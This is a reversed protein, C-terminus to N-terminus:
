KINTVYRQARSNLAKWYIVAAPKDSRKVKYYSKKREHIQKRNPTSCASWKTVNKTYCNMPARTHLKGCKLYVDGGCRTITWNRQFQNFKKSKRCLLVCKKSMNTFNNNKWKKWVARNKWRKVENKLKVYLPGWSINTLDRSPRWNLRETIGHYRFPM